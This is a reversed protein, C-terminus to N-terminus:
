KKYIQPRLDGFKACLHLDVYQILIFQCKQDQTKLSPINVFPIEVM